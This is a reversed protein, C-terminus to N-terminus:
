EPPAIHADGGVVFQHGLLARGFKVALPLIAQGGGFVIVMAAQGGDLRLPAGAEVEVLLLPM